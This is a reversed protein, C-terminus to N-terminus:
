LEDTTAFGARVASSLVGAGAEIGTSAAGSVISSMRLARGVTRERLRRRKDSRRAALM